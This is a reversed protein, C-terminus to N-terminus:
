RLRDQLDAPENPDAPVPDLQIGVPLRGDQGVDLAEGGVSEPHQGQGPSLEVALHGRGRRGSLLAKLQLPQDPHGVWNPELDGLCDGAAPPGPDPHDHDGAVMRGGRSGHGGLRAQAVAPHHPAGLERGAVVGKGVQHPAAHRHQRTAGSCFSRMAWASCARPSTTAMVPSPTLSAGARRWASIPTAMPTTPVSTARDAASMTRSSSLKAWMTSATSSPRAAKSLM